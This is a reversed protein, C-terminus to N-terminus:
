VDYETVLLHLPQVELARSCDRDPHEREAMFADGLRLFAMGLMAAMEIQLDCNSEPQRQQKMQEALADVAAQADM